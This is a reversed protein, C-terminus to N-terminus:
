LKVILESHSCSPTLVDCDTYRCSVPQVAPTRNWAPTLNKEEGDRGSRSQPGGLQGSVEM